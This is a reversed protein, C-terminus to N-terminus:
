GQLVAGDTSLLLASHVVLCARIHASGPFAIHKRLCTNRAHAGSFILLSAFRDGEAKTATCLLQGDASLSMAVKQMPTSSVPLVKTPLYLQLVDHVRLHSDHGITFLREGGPSYM